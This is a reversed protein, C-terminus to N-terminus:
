TEQEHKERKEKIKSLIEGKYFRTKIIDNKKLSSVGKVVKGNIYTISYGRKLTDLPSLTKLTNFSAELRHANVTLAHEIETVVSNVAYDAEQQRSEIIKYPFRYINMQSIGQLREKYIQVTHNLANILNKEMKLVSEILEERSETVLEAAASPTPARLDAVFDSITFDVEHGVASIVPIKSNYVARAVEEENFAWLDELSGGGRGIIMADMSPYLRNLTKIGKVIESAASRGQVSAPYIILGTNSFRREIVNLIDRVAAGAPSTVIGVLEPVKPVPRKREEDFLGEKQLKKKLELFKKELEGQGKESMQRVIIQYRGGRVFVSVTGRVLVKVGSEPIFDLRANYSKYMIADISASEDKITFYMHGSSHHTFNSIEGELLVSPFREELFERALSNVESVSYIKETFNLQIKL